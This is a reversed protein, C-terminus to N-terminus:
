EATRATLTKVLVPVAVAAATAIALTRRKPAVKRAARYALLASIGKIPHRAVFTAKPARVYGATTLLKKAITKKNM